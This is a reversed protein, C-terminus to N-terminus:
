FFRTVAIGLTIVIVMASGIQKWKTADSFLRSLLLALIGLDFLFLLQAAEVGLNFALLGTVLFDAPLGIERLASAFGLGHILGFFIVLPYRTHARARGRLNAIAVWLISLLILPEVISAPASFWGLATLALSLSHALTFLTVIGVLGGFSASGFFLAAVFLLHDVGDPFIHRFGTIFLDTFVARAEAATDDMNETIAPESGAPGAGLINFAPSRQGSVLWRTQKRGSAEDILTNAIPEEFRFGDLYTIQLTVPAQVSEPLTGVLQLHSRPWGLPDLFEEQSADPLRLETLTLAVPEGNATLALADPLPALAQAIGSDGLPNSRQSWSWYSERSGATALLDLALEATVSGDTSVSVSSRSM